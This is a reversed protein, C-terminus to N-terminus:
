TSSRKQALFCLGIDEERVEDQKNYVAEYSAELARSAVVSTRLGLKEKKPGHDIDLSNIFKEFVEPVAESGPM